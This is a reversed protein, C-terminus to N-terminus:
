QADFNDSAEFHTQLNPAYTVRRKRPGSPPAASVSDSRAALNAPWISYPLHDSYQLSKRLLVSSRRRKKDEIESPKLGRTTPITGSISNSHTKSNFYLTPRREESKSRRKEVADKVPSFTYRRKGSMNGEISLEEIGVPSASRTTADSNRSQTWAYIAPQTLRRM